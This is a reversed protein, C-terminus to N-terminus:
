LGRPRWEQPLARLAHAQRPDPPYGFGGRYKARPWMSVTHKARDHRVNADHLDRVPVDPDDFPKARTM